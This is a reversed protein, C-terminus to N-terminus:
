AGAAPEHIPAAAANAAEQGNGGQAARVRELYESVLRRGTTEDAVSAVVHYAPEDPDPRVLVFGGEVFVKIGDVLDLQRGDHDELLRRMVRGKAEWPCFETATIYTAVPLRRREESLPVRHVARMELLKVLTYMADYAGFFYPWIFGGEGDAALCTSPAASARLVASAEAPTPTFSGGATEIHSAIWQPTSAPALVI